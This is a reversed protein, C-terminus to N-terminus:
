MEPTTAAGSQLEILKLLAAEIVELRNHLLRSVDSHSCITPLESKNEGLFMVHAVFM